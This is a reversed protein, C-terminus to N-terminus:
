RKRWIVDAMKALNKIQAVDHVRLIDVGNAIASCCAAATGFIRKKPNNEELIEGIFSKRSVGLLIPNELIHFSSLHQLLEINQKSNKAFGIGPDIILYSKDIGAKVAITIKQNLWEIIEQVLNNYNLRTRMTEPTGRIHMIVMPIRLTSVTSFMKNDFSGGSIDNVIDAGEKIAEIVVESNTTDISIPISSERRLARIIPIVRQLEEKTTIKHAGPRTSQGGIDVIDVGENIMKKAHYLAIETKLFDGGDSFSDPTVNLIGMLYTSKGWEFTYDRITLYRM